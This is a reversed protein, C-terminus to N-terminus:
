VTTKAYCLIIENCYPENNKKILPNSSDFIFEELTCAKNKTESILLRATPLYNLDILLKNDGEVLLVQDSLKNKEKFDNLYTEFSKHSVTDLSNLEDKAIHWTQPALVANKYRVRPTYPRKGVLRGWSFNLSSRVGQNQLSCLFHYVPLSNASFNHASTLRPIIERNLRESRLSIKKGQPVSIYLDTIAIRYPNAVSSKALYPIEYERSTDRFLINGTRNEPLHVIEALVFDQMLERERNLINDILKKLARNTHGFRSLLSASSFGGVAKIIVLPSTNASDIKAVEVLASLTMSLDSWSDQFTSLDEETLNIETGGRHLCEVYKEFLLLEGPNFPDEALKRNSDKPSDPFDNLLANVDSTGPTYAGFGIGIDSDLVEVLRVEEEEYRRYFDEKFKLLLPNETSRRLKNLATIGDYVSDILEKSLGAVKPYLAMDVQFLFKRDYGVGIKKVEQEIDNYLHTGRGLPTTDLEDLDSKIKELSALIDSAERISKLRDIVSVFFDTQTISPELEGVLIQCSVLDEIFNASEKPDIESDHLAKVLDGLLAGDKAATLILDLYDSAEVETLFYERRNKEYKYQVFRYAHYLKYLSSNPYFSINERIYPLKTLYYALQCVYNMDLKTVRRINDYEYLEIKSQHGILGVGCGAFIGFPTCRSKIRQQYKLLSSRVKLTLRDPRIYTEGRIEDFLDPSAIFVSEKFIDSNLLMLDEARLPFQPCRFVFDDLCQYLKFDIM